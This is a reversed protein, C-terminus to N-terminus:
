DQTLDIVVRGTKLKKAPRSPNSSAQKKEGSVETKIRALDGDLESKIPTESPTTTKTHNAVMGPLVLEHELAETYRMNTVILWDLPLYPHMSRSRYKFHFRCLMSSRTYDCVIEPLSSVTGQGVRIYQDADANTILIRNRCPEPAYTTGHSVSSGKIAKEAIRFANQDPTKDYVKPRTQGKKGVLVEVNILGLGKAKEKDQSIRHRDETEVAEVETFMLPHELIRSTVPCQTAKTSIAGHKPANGPKPPTVFTGGVFSGDIKVNIILLEDKLDQINEDVSYNISFIAGSNSEIYCTTLSEDSAEDQEMEAPDYEKAREGAVRVEVSVGPVRSNIAM